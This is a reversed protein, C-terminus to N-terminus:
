LRKQWILPDRSSHFCSLVYLVNEEERFFILYPFRGIQSKRVEGRVVPYRYPNAAVRTLQKDLVERFRVGLGKAETEYWNQVDIVEQRAAPTFVIGANLHGPM